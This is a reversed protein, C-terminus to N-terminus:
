LFDGMQNEHELVPKRGAKSGEVPFILLMANAM